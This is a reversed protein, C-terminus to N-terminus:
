KNNKNAKNGDVNRQTIGVIIMALTRADRWHLTIPKNGASQIIIEDGSWDIGIDGIMAVMKPRKETM